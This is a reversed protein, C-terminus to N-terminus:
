TLKLASKYVEDVYWFHPYGTFPTGNEHLIIAQCLPILYDPIKIVTEPTEGVQKAVASVYAETSNENPPAYRNIIDRITEIGDNSYTILIKMLARIGYAPGDFEVFDPDTQQESQGQWKTSSLRVNGPNNNRIGRPLM